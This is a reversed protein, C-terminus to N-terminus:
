KLISEDKKDIIEKITYNKRKDNYYNKIAIDALLGSVFLQIGALVMLVAVLPWIRNQLSILNFFRAITLYLGLLFGVGGILLGLSGFLHLPRGSYKRWFWVSIMDIFGKLIRKWNYKTKGTTRPRHEVKVEGIKFGKWRLIAPVFRHIEGYLDLDNFCERKYAKLTCGSDHIQDSILFKRLFNAGRSIFKKAWLDKRKYRWGSVVDYGEKIKELLKPIEFPPNQGDGDLTIIIEGRAQKIGADLAATQGFNKRFKVIKIPSLRLLNEFTGDSSGDDVFIIEHPEALNNMVEKIEAFIPQVSDQENYVPIIVSYKIKNLEM